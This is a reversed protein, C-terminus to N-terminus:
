MAKVLGGHLGWEKQRRGAAEQRGGTAKRGGEQRGGTAKNYERWFLFHLIQSPFGFDNYMHAFNNM